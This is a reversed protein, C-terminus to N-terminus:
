PIPATFTFGLSTAVVNPEDFMECDIFRAQPRELQYTRIFLGEPSKVSGWPNPGEGVEIGAPLGEAVSGDWAFTYGASPTQIGPAAAVYGLWVTTGWVEVLNDALGEAANNYVSEPTIINDIEFLAKLQDLTVQTPRDMTGGYKIRDILSANKLLVDKVPGPLVMTNPKFGTALWMIRKAKRIDDVPDSAAQDWQTFNTGTFGGSTAGARTYAWNGSTQILTAVKIERELLGKITVFETKLRRLTSAPIGGVASLALEQRTYATSVGWHSTTYSGKGTGFGEIPPAEYNALQKGGRRLFDGSKWVVYQGSPAAVPVTPFIRGAAFQEQSPLFGVAINTLMPSISQTLQAGEPQPM